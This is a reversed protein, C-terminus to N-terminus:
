KPSLLHAIPMNIDIKDIFMPDITSIKPSLRCFGNKDNRSGKAIGLFLKQRNDRFSLVISGINILLVSIFIGM